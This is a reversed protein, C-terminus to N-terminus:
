IKEQYRLDREELFRQYLKDSIIGGDKFSKLVTNEVHYAARKALFLKVEKCYEPYLDELHLMKDVAKCRWKAYKKSFYDIAGDDYFIHSNSMEKLVEIVQDIAIVRSRYMEYRLMIEKKEANKVIKELGIKKFFNAAKGKPDLWTLTGIATKEKVEKGSQTSLNELLINLLNETIEGHSYLKIFVRKEVGLLHSQLIKYIKNKCLEKKNDRVLEELHHMCKKSDRDFFDRVRMFIDKSIFGNDLMFDLKMRIKNNILLKNEDYAFTELKTFNKLGLKQLLPEVTMGNLVMTVFVISTSFIVMENYFPTNSPITLVLAIVLAGRLGGWQLIHMWSKPIKEGKSLWNILPVLIYIVAARAFLVIAIVTLISLLMKYM